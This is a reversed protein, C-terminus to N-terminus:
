KNNEQKKKIYFKEFNSYFNMCYCVTEWINILFTMQLNKPLLKHFLLPKFIVLLFQLTRELYYLKSFSVALKILISSSYM